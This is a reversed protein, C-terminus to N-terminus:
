CFIVYQLYDFPVTTKVQPKVVYCVEVIEFKADNEESHIHSFENHIFLLLTFPLGHTSIFLRLVREDKTKKKEVFSDYIIFIPTDSTDM